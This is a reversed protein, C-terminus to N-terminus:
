RTAPLEFTFNCRSHLLRAAAFGGQSRAARRALVIEPLAALRTNRRTEFRFRVRNRRKASETGVRITTGPRAADIAARLLGRLAPAVIRPDGRARLRSPEAAIEVGKAAAGLERAASACSSVLSGLDVTAHRVAGSELLEDLTANELGARLRRLSSELGLAARSDPLIGRARLLDFSLQAGTMADRLEHALRTFRQLERRRRGTEAELTLRVLTEAAAHSLAQALSRQESAGLLPLADLAADFLFDCLLSSRTAARQAAAGLLDPPPVRFRRELSRDVGDLLAPLLRSTAPDLDFGAEAAALVQRRWRDLLEPRQTRLTRRLEDM